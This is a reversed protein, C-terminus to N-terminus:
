FLYLFTPLALFFVALSLSNKEFVCLAIGLIGLLFLILLGYSLFISGLGLSGATAPLSGLASYEHTTKLLAKGIFKYFPLNMFFDRLFLFLFVLSPVFIYKWKSSLM